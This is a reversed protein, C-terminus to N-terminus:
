PLACCCLVLFSAVMRSLAWRWGGQRRLSWCRDLYLLLCGKVLIGFGGHLIVCHGASATRCPYCVGVRFPAPGYADPAIWYPSTSCAHEIGGPYGAGFSRLAVTQPCLFCGPM